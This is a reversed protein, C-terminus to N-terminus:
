ALQLAPVPFSNPRSSLDRPRALLSHIPMSQRLSIPSGFAAPVTSSGEIAEAHGAHYSWSFEFKYSPMIDFFSPPWTAYMSVALSDLTVIIVHADPCGDRIIGGVIVLM